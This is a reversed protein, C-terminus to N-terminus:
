YKWLIDRDVITAPNGIVLSRAPVNRTVFSNAGIIAGEGIRVGQMITCGECLWVKDEIIVPKSNKYGQRNIYHGGNNDRITVNRGIKVDRGISIQDGCILTLGINSAIGESLILKANNFVEIDAGYGIEVNGLIEVQSNDLLLLRTEYNSNRFISEGIKFNGNLLIRSSSAKQLLVKGKPMILNNLSLMNRFNALRFNLCVMKAYGFMSLKYYSYLSRLRNMCKKAFSKIRSNNRVNSFDYKDGLESFTLKDLDLFFQERNVLSEKLPYLLAPNGDIALQLPAPYCNIKQQIRKFFAEGKKSNIMVLSMGLDKDKIGLQKEIGWFDALTIDAIRPFEKYKCSYCSPRCYANTRLYGKTFLSEKGTEYIHQGNELIVKQTLNRWGYEKSKAKAYVVKSGYREKFSEVYKSWVKPSNIGRCVFDLILLNDYDKKLFSKLGAMQCPCGCVVVPLGTKLISKVDKFWGTLDSQLYKSSRLQELDSKNNSICHSVSLDNNFQAGGVYGGDKYTIEAFASFLGGSTSDFVIEINKHEAAYCKPEKFDNQKLKSINLDPCTKDCLSCDICLDMTVKPYWFGEIDVEMEIAKTPCVDICACCGNCDKKNLINIM